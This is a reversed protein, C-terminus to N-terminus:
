HYVIFGLVGKHLTALIYFDVYYPIAMCQSKNCNTRVYTGKM